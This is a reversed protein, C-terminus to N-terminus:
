SRDKKKKKEKEKPENAEYSKMRLSWTVWEFDEYALLGELRLNRDDLLELRCSLQTPPKKSRGAMMYLGGEVNGLVGLIEVLPEFRFVFYGKGPDKRPLELDFKFTHKKGNPLTFAGYLVLLVETQSLKFLSEVPQREDESGSFTFYGHAVYEGQPILRLLSTNDSVGGGRSM